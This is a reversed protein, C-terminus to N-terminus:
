SGKMAVLVRGMQTASPSDEEPVGPQLQAVAAAARACRASGDTDDENQIPVDAWVVKGGGPGCPYHGWTASMCAVLFIGRGGTAEVGVDKLLPPAPDRDWVSVRVRSESAELVLQVVSVSELDSYSLSQGAEPGPHRVANTVLESVVLRITEVVDENTM